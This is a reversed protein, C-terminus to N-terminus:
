GLPDPTRTARVLEGSYVDRFATWGWVRRRGEWPDNAGCGNADARTVLIWHEISPSVWRGLCIATGGAATIRQLTAAVGGADVAEAIAPVNCLQLCRVLDAASTLAVRGPGGLLMRLADASLPVGHQRSIEMAACEEGCENWRQAPLTGDPLPDALQNWLPAARAVAGGAVLDSARPGRPAPQKLGAALQAQQAELAKTHANVMASLYGLIAVAFLAAAGGIAQWTEQNM